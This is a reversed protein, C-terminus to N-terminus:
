KVLRQQRQLIEDYTVIRVDGERSQARDLLEVDCEGLRGILM